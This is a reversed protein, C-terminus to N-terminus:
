VEPGLSFEPLTAIIYSGQTADSLRMAGAIRNEIVTGAIQRPEPGRLVKRNRFLDIFLYSRKM